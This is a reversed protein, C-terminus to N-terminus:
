CAFQPNLLCQSFNGTVKFKYQQREYMESYLRASNEAAHHTAFTERIGDIVTERGFVDYVVIQYSKPLKKYQRMMIHVSVLLFFITMTIIIAFESGKVFNLFNAALNQDLWRFAISMVKDTTSIIINLM